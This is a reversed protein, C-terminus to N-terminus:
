NGLTARLGALGAVLFAGVRVWNQRTWRAIRRRAELDATAKEQVERGAGAIAVLRRINGGMVVATWLGTFATAAAATLWPGRQPAPGAYALYTTAALHTLSLPVVLHAGRLFIERFTPTSTHAPLDLLHPTTNQSAALSYGTLLFPLPLALLHATHHLTTSM